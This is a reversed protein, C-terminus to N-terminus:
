SLQFIKEARSAIKHRENVHSLIGTNTLKVGLLKGEKPFPIDISELNPNGPKIRAAPIVLFKNKNTRIKWQEEFNCIIGIARDTAIRIFNNRRSPHSIIQTIDNAYM